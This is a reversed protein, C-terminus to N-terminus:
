IKAEVLQHWGFNKQLTQFINEPMLEFWKEKVYQYNKYEPIRYPFIHTQEIAVIEFGNNSLLEKLEQKTYSNAIPCGFQAEPQELGEDILAQKYSNKAYVMFKFVSSKKMLKRISYFAKGIDPTHHLVGFSYILDYSKNRLIKHLNEADGEVLTGKLDYLEFRKKTIELSVKSLEIGTYSAGARAFNIADTGIGCGIELVEMNKWNSFAAFRPIHPEVFYKRKEIEEFYEQTGFTKNSHNINCPQRDWFDIVKNKLNNTRM